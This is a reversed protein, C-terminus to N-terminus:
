VADPLFDQDGTASPTIEGVQMAPRVVEQRGIRMEARRRQRPICWLVEDREDLLMANRIVLFRQSLQEAVARRLFDDAHQLFLAASSPDLYESCRSCPFHPTVIVEHYAGISVLKM